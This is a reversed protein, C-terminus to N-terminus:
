PSTVSIVLIAPLPFPPFTRSNVSLVTSSIKDLDGAPGSLM